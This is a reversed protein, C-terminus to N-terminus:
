AAEKQQEQLQQQQKNLRYVAHSGGDITHQTSTVIDMDEDNRLRHIVAALRFCGCGRLADLPTIPKGALLQQRVWAQQTHAKSM